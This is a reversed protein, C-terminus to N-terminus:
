QQLYQITTNTPQEIVKLLDQYTNTKLLCTRLYHFIYVFGEMLQFCFVAARM